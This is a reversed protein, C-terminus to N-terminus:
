KDESEKEPVKGQIEGEIAVLVGEEEPWTM